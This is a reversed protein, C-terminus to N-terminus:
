FINGIDTIDFKNIEDIIIHGCLYYIFSYCIVCLLISDDFISMYTNHKSLMEPILIYAFIYFGTIMKIFVSIIFKFKNTINIRTRLKM